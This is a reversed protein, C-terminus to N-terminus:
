GSTKRDNDLHIIVKMNKMLGGNNIGIINKLYWVKKM